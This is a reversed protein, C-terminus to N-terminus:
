SSPGDNEAEERTARRRNIQKLRALFREIKQIRRSADHAIYRGGVVEDLARKCQEYERGSVPVGHFTNVLAPLVMDLEEGAMDIRLDLHLCRTIVREHEYPIDLAQIQQEFAHKQM